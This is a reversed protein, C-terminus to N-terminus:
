RAEAGQYWPGSQCVRQATAAEVPMSEYTDKRESHTLLVASVFLIFFISNRGLLDAETLNSLFQFLLFTLPWAAARAGRCRRLYGMSRLLYYTSVVLFIIVGAVGLELWLELLGNHAHPVDWNMAQWVRSTFWEDPLWAASYGYGLWPRRLAMMFSFIWIQVRGTLTASRGLFGTAEEMHTAVYLLSVTGVASLLAIGSVAWRASKRLTWQLYPLLAMMLALVVASTMSHSLAILAVCGLLGVNTLRRHEPEVRKWFLFVLASLVMMRGLGNKQDFIGYWGPVGDESDVSTGLGLLGFIFSFVVCIGCVWALLRLQEKLSFRSAFYVGFVLTLTLAISRRLTLGPAESWFLSLMAFVCLGVLPWESFFTRIPQECHRFFLFLTILYVLAWLVQMVLMGATSQTQGPVVWLSSFAGTSFLLVLVVFVREARRAGRSVRLTDEAVAM